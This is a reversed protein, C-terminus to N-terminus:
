NRVKTKENLQEELDMLSSKLLKESREMTKRNQEVEELESLRQKTEAMTAVTQEVEKSKCELNNELTEIRSQMETHEAEQRRNEQRVFEMDQSVQANRMLVVDKENKERELSVKLTASATRESELDERLRAVELHLSSNNMREGDLSLRVHSLESAAASLKTTADELNQKM